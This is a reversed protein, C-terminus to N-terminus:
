PALVELQSWPFVNSGIVSYGATGALAAGWPNNNPRTKPDEGYISVAGAHDRVVFGYKKVARAIAKTLASKGALQTEVDYTPPLRFRRGEKISNATIPTSGDARTAPAVYQPDPFVDVLSLAIAHPITYNTDAAVQAAEDLTILGGVLPLGTATAGLPRPLIGSFASQNLILAGASANPQSKTTSENTNYFEWIKDTAPQWIVMHHDTGAAPSAGSPWPVAGWRLTMYNDDWDTVTQTPADSPVIYIPTSYSNINLYTNGPTPKSNVQNLLKQIDSQDSNLPAAALDSNWFASAAFFRPRTVTAYDIKPWYYSNSNYERAAIKYRTYSNGFGDPSVRLFVTATNGAARTAATVDLQVNLWKVLAADGASDTSRTGGSTGLSTPLFNDQLLTASPNSDGSGLFYDNPTVASNSRVNLGYLDGNYNPSKSGSLVKGSYYCHFDASQFYTGAPLNPLAFVLVANQGMAGSSGGFGVGLQTGTSNVINPPGQDIQADAVDGNITAAQSM